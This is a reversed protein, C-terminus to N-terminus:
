RPEALGEVVFVTGPSAYPPCGSGKTPRPALPALGKQSPVVKGFPGPGKPAACSANRTSRWLRWARSAGEVTSLPGDASGRLEGCIACRELGDPVTREAGRDLDADVGERGCGLCRVLMPRVACPGFTGFSCQIGAPAFWLDATEWRDGHETLFASGGCDPCVADFLTTAIGDM